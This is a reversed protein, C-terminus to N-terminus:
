EESIYWHLWPELTLFTKFLSVNWIFYTLIAKAIILEKEKIYSCAETLCAVLLM